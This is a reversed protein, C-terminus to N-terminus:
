AFYAITLRIGGFMHHNKNSKDKKPTLELFLLTLNKQNITNVTDFFISSLGIHSPVSQRSQELWQSVLM